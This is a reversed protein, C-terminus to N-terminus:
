IAIGKRSLCMVAAAIHVLVLVAVMQLHTSAITSGYCLNSVEKMTHTELFRCAPQITGQWEVDVIRVECFQEQVTSRNEQKTAQTQKISGLLIMALGDETHAEVLIFRVPRSWSVQKRSHTAVPYTMYARNQSHSYAGSEEGLMSIIWLM